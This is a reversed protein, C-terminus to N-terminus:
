TTLAPTNTTQQKAPEETSTLAARARTLVELGLYRRGEIWEDHQEALVAGVLRIISARDPFIGVVDTRRRVERNLREQPNNSWIQRWIKKPFATFALLDTRATDLHEAVAPLKDTLADLVRDYQAVVSEADPQDYISHLLTRVWPWSPKPTAAMLNAAYHTRCRQWAAAPLTAGIAAVLGAHADSTVLAVGSLGRAVLDRFFALWGAGDEASTVQIGLIERYGEANVGTAILTHVGVVRGAERVKLVLADAALFTYPGADLPRTRFAEVAEDLEKAMISVQSKSLKTVGLTEVLREMRRTSVGLLYCTAVVSTLAREARNLREQPNNSWIQRWIKKPFATFALLDTRATDLHEAVAPLKDTLADLVRDYQAVVSEANPQDYISHLLTRVWPWSPKPTAAMLNAAYHTRCRQWAAAPLTAGIAAVLGAHADSTVLAVGSLGRAVLDRFFALWGAGDEASTVQIGLIERYGEANVGTAILTHVGVVRGAERVKLVLADAALFTYPGADLPRTRFAEVAEDLEKAMISVQSKSLKTVGLTEVLREMRRTSVGLLYCTAVVSTLAREARKRRQLLWDPFYSGQRLKPIAVDITAARTDFDRHRYGNRQNSREDSRERYGAGCLADAEAGMLAAIFTSLLGRLLDPSAQALQDALLQEADILHSSTM